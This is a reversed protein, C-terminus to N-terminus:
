AQVNEIYMLINVSFVNGEHRIDMQGDYKEVSKQINRLGYGHGDGDKRTAIVKGAENKGEVYKIVGDYSNELKIFLVGKNVEVTLRIMKEDVNAVADFANDLLNGLITVVDAVEINLAPPVFIRLQFHIHNAVVDKIKFNIISDFAINGTDSYMESEEVDELLRNLYDRAEKNDTTFNKLTTLHLKVDHRYAKMKEVSEQMLECQTFYYEREQAHLASKLSDEFVKSIINYLYFILLIVGSFNFVNAAVGVIRPDIFFHLLEIFTYVIPFIILPLWLKSLNVETKKINKFTLFAIWAVFYIFLSTLLMILGLHGMPWDPPLIRLLASNIATQSILVYHSGAVAAIRKITVSTYNLSIMALAFFHLFIDLIVHLHLSLTLLLFLYSFVTGVLATKRKEFFVRMTREVTLTAIILALVSLTVNLTDM